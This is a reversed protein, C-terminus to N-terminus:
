RHARPYGRVLRLVRDWSLVYHLVVLIGLGIGASRYGAALLALTAATFLFAELGLRVIGPVAILVRGGHSDDGPTRLTAWATAALVPLMVALAVGSVGGVTALAWATLAALAALELGFRLALNVPHNSM